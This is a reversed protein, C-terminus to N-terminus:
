MQQRNWIVALNIVPIVPITIQKMLKVYLTLFVASFLECLM